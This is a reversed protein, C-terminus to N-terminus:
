PMNKRVKCFRARMDAATFLRRVFYGVGYQGKYHRHQCKKISISGRLGVLAQNAYLIRGLLCTATRQLKPTVNICASDRRPILDRAKTHWTQSAIECLHFSSGSTSFVALTM